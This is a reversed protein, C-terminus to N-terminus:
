IKEQYEICIISVNDMTKKGFNRLAHIFVDASQSFDDKCIEAINMIQEESFTKYLGDSCLILKDGDKLVLAEDSIDYLKIKGMGLFSTLAEGQKLEKEYEELSLIGEELYRNLQTMYNHPLFPCHLKGERLIYLKSDGVSLWYLRNESIYVAVVTTGCELLNGNEDELRCVSRNMLEMAQYFFSPVNKIPINEQFLCEEMKRIACTSALEGGEMGGMGDCVMALIDKNRGMYWLTDQQYERSGILSAACINLNNPILVQNGLLVTKELENKDMSEASERGVPRYLAEPDLAMEPVETIAESAYIEEADLKHARSGFWKKM